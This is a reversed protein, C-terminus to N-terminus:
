NPFLTPVSIETVSGDLTDVLTLTIAESSRTFDITTTGFVVSGDDQPEEGFIAEVVQSSLNSMLADAAAEFAASAAAATM